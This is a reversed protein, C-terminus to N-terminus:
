SRTIRRLNNSKEVYRFQNAVLRPGQMLGSGYRSACIFRTRCPSSDGLDIRQIAQPIRKALDAVAVADIHDHGIRREAFFLAADETVEGFVLLGGFGFHEEELEDHAFELARWVWAAGGDDHGVAREEAVADARPDFFFQQPKAASSARPRSFGATKSRRASSKWTSSRSSWFGAPAARRISFLRGSNPTSSKSWSAVVPRPTYFEGSDGAADRMKKLMSEYLHGLTHIEDSSTFHIDNVKNIV